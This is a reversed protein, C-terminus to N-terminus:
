RDERWKEVRYRFLRVAPGWFDRPLGAKVKLHALFQRPDPLQDWVQPLFTARHVGAELVVGDTGPRLQGRADAETTFIVPTQPSLLSVEVRLLPLEVRTVPPFRPDAFAASRANERLDEGLPRQAVLSGICGRLEGAKTLTVFTAGPNTLWPAPVEPGPPAGLATEIAERALQVLIRGQSPDM